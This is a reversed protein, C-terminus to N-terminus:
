EEHAKQILEENEQEWKELQDRDWFSIIHQQKYDEIADEILASREETTECAALENDDIILYHPRNGVYGDDFGFNIRM